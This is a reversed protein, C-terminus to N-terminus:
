TGDFTVEKSGLRCRESWFLAMHVTHHPPKGQLGSNVGQQGICPLDLGSSLGPHVAEFAQLWDEIYPARVRTSAAMVSCSLLRADYGITHRPGSLTRTDMMCTHTLLRGIPLSRGKSGATIRLVAFIFGQPCDPRRSIPHARSGFCGTEAIDQCIDADVEQLKFHM